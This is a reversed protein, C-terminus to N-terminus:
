TWARSSYVSDQLLADLGTVLGMHVGPKIEVTNKSARRTGHRIGPLHANADHGCAAVVTLWALEYILDMARIGRELVHMDNQLLCLADVWLFRVGLHRVLVIADQITKPLGEWVDTLSGPVLLAKRNAKTLRFNSVAGWVYSLAIYKEVKQTEVLCNTEVDILRLVHLGQFAKTFTPHEQVRCISGHGSECSSVWRSVRTTDLVSETFAEIFQIDRNRPTELPLGVTARGFNIRVRPLEWIMFLKTKAHGEVSIRRTSNIDLHCEYFASLILQCFPCQSGNIRAGSGLDYDQATDPSQRKIIREFPIVACFDCLKMSQSM